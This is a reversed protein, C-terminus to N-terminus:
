KSVNYHQAHHALVSEGRALKGIQPPMAVALAEGQLALYAADILAARMRRAPKAPIAWTPTFRRASM